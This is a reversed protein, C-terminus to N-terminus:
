ANVDLQHSGEEVGGEDELAEDQEREANAESLTRARDRRRRELFRGRDQQPEGTLPIRVTTVNALDDAM